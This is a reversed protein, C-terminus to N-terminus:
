TYFTSAHARPYAREVSSDIWWLSEIDYHLSLSISPHLIAVRLREVVDNRCDQLWRYHQDHTTALRRLLSLSM